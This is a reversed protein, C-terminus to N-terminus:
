VDEKKKERNDKLIVIMARRGAYKRLGWIRGDKTIAKAVVEEGEETTIKVM